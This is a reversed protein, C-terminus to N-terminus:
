NFTCFLYLTKAPKPLALMVILHYLAYHHNCAKRLGITKQKSKQCWFLSFRSIFLMAVCLLVFIVDCFCTAAKAAVIPGIM